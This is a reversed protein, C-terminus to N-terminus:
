WSPKARARARRGDADYYFRSHTTGNNEVVTLRNEWDYTYNWTDTVDNKYLLNGNEDWTFSMGTASTLRNMSDYTYSTTTQGVQM